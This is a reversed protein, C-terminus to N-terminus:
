FYDELVRTKRCKACEEDGVVYYLSAHFLAQQVGCSKCKNFRTKMEQVATRVDEKIVVEVARDRVSYRKGGTHVNSTVIAGGAKLISDRIRYTMLASALSMMSLLILCVKGGVGIHLVKVHNKIVPMLEDLGIRKPIVLAVGLESRLPYLFSVLLYLTKVRVSTAILEVCTVCLNMVLQTSTVLILCLSQMALRGQAEAYVTSAIALLCNCIKLGVFSYKWRNEQNRLARRPLKM